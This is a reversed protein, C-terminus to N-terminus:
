SSMSRMGFVEDCHTMFAVCRLKMEMYYEMNFTENGTVELKYFSKLSLNLEKLQTYIDTNYM